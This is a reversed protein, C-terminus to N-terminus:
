SRDSPHAQGPEHRSLIEDAPIQRLHEPAHHRSAVVARYAESRSFIEDAAPLRM